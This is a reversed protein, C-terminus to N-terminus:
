AKIHVGQMFTHQVGMNLCGRQGGRNGSANVRRGAWYRMEERAPQLKCVGQVRQSKVSRRGM